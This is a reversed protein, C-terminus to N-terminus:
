KYHIYERIVLTVRSPTCPKSDKKSLPPHDASQKLHETFLRPFHNLNLRHTKVRSYFPTQLFPANCMQCPPKLFDMCSDWLVCLCVFVSMHNILLADACRLASRSIYDLYHFAIHWTLRSMILSYLLKLSVCVCVCVWRQTMPILFGHAM